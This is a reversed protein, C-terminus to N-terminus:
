TDITNNSKSTVLTKFPSLRTYHHKRLITTNYNKRTRRIPITGEPCSGYQHWTQTLELTGSIYSKTGKPNLTLRMQITHNCLLPHNLSPQRYIDFCDITEANEVKITKIIAKNVAKTTTRGEILGEDLM